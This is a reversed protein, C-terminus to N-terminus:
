AEKRNLPVRSAAAIQALLYSRRSPDPIGLAIEGARAPDTKMVIKAIEALGDGLHSTDDDETLIRIALDPYLVAIASAVAAPAKGGAARGTRRAHQLLMMAADADGEAIAAAVLSFARAREGPRAVHYALHEAKAPDIM